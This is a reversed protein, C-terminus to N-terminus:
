HCQVERAYRGRGWESKLVAGATDLAKRTCSDSMGLIQANSKFLNRRLALWFHVTFYM